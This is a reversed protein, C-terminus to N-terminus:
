RKAEAALAALALLKDARCFYYAPKRTEQLRMVDSGALMKELSVAAGAEVPLFDGQLEVAKVLGKMPLSAYEKCEVKLDMPGRVVVDTDFKREANRSGTSGSGATRQALWGANTWEADAKKEGRKGKRVAARSRASKAADKQKEPCGCVDRRNKRPGITRINEGCADCRPPFRTEGCTAHFDTM